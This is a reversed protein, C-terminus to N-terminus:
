VSEIYKKIYNSFDDLDIKKLSSKSLTIKGESTFRFLVDGNKDECSYSACRNSKLNSLRKSLFDSLMDVGCGERIKSSLNVFAMVYDNGRDCMSALFAATKPKVLSMDEVANWVEIPVKNFSLLDSLSSKAINLKRALDAQTINLDNMIKQYSLALSYSSLTNKKNESTQILICGVDDENTIIAKLKIGSLKTARWRREGAIIEYTYDLSDIKRVIVPQLQGNLKIDESLDNLDGLEFNHRDSYKCNCCENPDIEIISLNQVSKLKEELQNVQSKLFNNSEIEKEAINKWDRHTDKILVSSIIENMKERKSM